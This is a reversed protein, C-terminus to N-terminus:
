RYEIDLQFRAATARWQDPPGWAILHGEAFLFWYRQAGGNEAIEVDAVEVQPHDPSRGRARLRMGDVRVLADQQREVTSAFLDFVREKLDGPRITTLRERPQPRLTVRSPTSREPSTAPPQPATIRKAATPTPSEATALPAASRSSVDPAARPPPGPSPAPASLRPTVRGDRVRPLVSLVTVVLVGGGLLAGGAVLMRRRRRQRRAHARSRYHRLLAEVEPTERDPTPEPAPLPAPASTEDRKM